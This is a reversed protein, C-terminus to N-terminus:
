ASTPFSIFEVPVAKTLWVDNNSLFFEYGAQHMQLSAITLVIPKGRRSGVSIATVREASLHV